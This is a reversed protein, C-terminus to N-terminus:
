LTGTAAGGMYAELVREDNRILSPPGEAIKSGLDLVVVHDCLRMIFEMNHDIVVLTVGRKNFRKLLDSIKLIMSPNVGAVPEDLFAIKPETIMAGAISLLKRQGYSLFSVPFEAMHSLGMIGLLESAQNQIIEDAQRVRSTKLIASLWNVGDFEQAAAFLNDLVSMEDYAPVAQFTRALGSHAVRHRSVATLNEGELSWTGADAAQFHTICDVTTSKGSGNPGILGVISQKEVSFSLNNLAAIGNYYKSLNEVKFLETM